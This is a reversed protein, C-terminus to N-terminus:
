PLKARAVMADREGIAETHGDILSQLASSLQEVLLLSNREAASV